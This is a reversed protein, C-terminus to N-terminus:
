PRTTTSAASAAPAYPDFRNHDIVCLRAGSARIACIRHQGNTVTDAEGGWIIPDHFLWWLQDRERKPLPLTALVEDLTSWLENQHARFIRVSARAVERWDALRHYYCSALQEDTLGDFFRRGAGEQWADKFLAAHTCRSQLHGYPLSSVRVVRFQESVLWDERPEDM